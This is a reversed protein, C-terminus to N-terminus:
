LLLWATHIHAIAVRSVGMKFTLSHSIPLSRRFPPSDIARVTKAVATPDSAKGVMGAM